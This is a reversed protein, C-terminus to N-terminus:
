RDDSTSGWCSLICTLWVGLKSQIELPVMMVMQAAYRMSHTVLVRNAEFAAHMGITQHVAKCSLHHHAKAPNRHGAKDSRSQRHLQQIQQSCHWKQQGTDDKHLDDASGLECLYQQLRTMYFICKWRSGYLHTIASM